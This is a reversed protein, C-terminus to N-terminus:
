RSRSASSAPTRSPSQSAPGSEPTSHPDAALRGGRSKQPALTTDAPPKIPKCAVLQPRAHPRGIGLDSPLANAGKEIGGNVEHECVQEGANQFQENVQDIVQAGVQGVDSGDFHEVGGDLGAFERALIFLLSVGM